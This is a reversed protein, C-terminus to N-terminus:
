VPLQVREIGTARGAADAEIFVGQIVVGEEAVEFRVPMQTLFRKIIIDKKVGIVSDHPGTMGADTLYATGGPLLKEDATQVHTHTGIVATVRGDLYFGLAVKESTAEAHIDVLIHHIDAPIEDLIADIVQFADEATNIYLNGALNIVALRQGGRERVTWGRGPNSALYNAPRIIRDSEDLFPFIDRQKWVHNGMTLVDVGANLLREAIKRTIGAGSAANEGNAVVFDPEYREMLQPMNDAVALRGPRGFIDSIFLIRMPIFYLM